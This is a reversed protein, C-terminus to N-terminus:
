HNGEQILPRSPASLGGSIGPYQFIGKIESSFILRGGQYSYYLPKVGMPDRFLTISNHREDFIAFAFIGNCQKVFEAGYTMYGLLLVETDSTTQFTMGRNILDDRLEKTNYLEGNYVIHCQMGEVDRSMPQSGGDLDIISLRTHALGCHTKLLINQADPGRHFLVKNMDQLISEYRSPSSLYDTEGDYFGSIGCM